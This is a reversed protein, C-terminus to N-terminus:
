AEEAKAAPNRTLERLVGAAKGITTQSTGEVTLLGRYGIEKLRAIVAPWDIKGVGIARAEGLADPREMLPWDGDSCTVCNILKGLVDLAEVADGTGYRIMNGPDFNVKLGPHHVDEILRVLVKPPETGAEVTLSQGNRHCFRCLELLENRIELYVPENRNLPLIGIKFSITDIALERALSSVKKLREIRESRTRSPVLGVTRAIEPVSSYDEDSFRVRAAVAIFQQATLARDLASALGDLSLGGDFAIQGGRIGMRKAEGLDDALNVGARVVCGIELDNLGLM